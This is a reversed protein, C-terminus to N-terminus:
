KEYIRGLRDYTEDFLEEVADAELTLACIIAIAFDDRSTPRMRLQRRWNLALSHLLELTFSPDTRGLWISGGLASPTYIYQTKQHPVPETELAFTTLLKTPVM